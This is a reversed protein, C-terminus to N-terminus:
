LVKPPSIFVGWTSHLYSRVLGSSQRVEDKTLTILRGNVFLFVKENARLAKDIMLMRSTAAKELPIFEGSRSLFTLDPDFTKKLLMMERKSPAEGFVSGIIKENKIYYVVQKGASVKDNSIRFSGASKLMPQMKRLLDLSEVRVKYKYASHSEDWLFWVEDSHKPHNMLRDLSITYAQETLPHISCLSLKKEISIDRVDLESSGLDVKNIKVEIKLPVRRVIPKDQESTESILTDLDIRVSNKGPNLVGIKVIKSDDGDAEGNSIVMGYSASELRPSMNPPDWRMPIDFYQGKDAAGMIDFTCFTASDAFELVPAPIKNQLDNLLKTGESVQAEPTVLSAAKSEPAVKPVKPLSARMSLRPLAPPRPPKVRPPPPVVTPALAMPEALSLKFPDVSAQQLAATKSPPPLSGSAFAEQSESAVSVPSSSNTTKENSEAVADPDRKLLIDAVDRDLRIQKGQSEKVVLPRTALDRVSTSKQRKPKLTAIDGRILTVANILEKNKTEVTVYIQSNEGIRIRRGDQFTIELTSKAATAVATKDAIGAGKQIPSWSVMEEHRMEASGKLVAVQAIPQQTRTFIADVKTLGYLCAGIALLWLTVWIYKSDLKM